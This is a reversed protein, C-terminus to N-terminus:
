SFSQLFLDALLGGVLGVWLNGTVSALMAALFAGM